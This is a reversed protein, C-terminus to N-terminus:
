GIQHENKEDQLHSRQLNPDALMGSCASSSPGIKPMVEEYSEQFQPIQIQCDSGVLNQSSTNFSVIEETTEEYNESPSLAIPNPSVEKENFLEIKNFNQNQNLCFMKMQRYFNAMFKLHTNFLIQERESSKKRDLADMKEANKIREERDKMIQIRDAEDKKIREERDKMMQIRDAEDKKLRDERDKKMQAEEKKLRDERDKRMQAEEKKLKEERDKKMQTEEIKLKEERDKMMLIRDSEDRKMYTAIFKMVIEMKGELGIDSKEAPMTKDSSKGGFHALCTELVADSHIEGSLEEVIQTTNTTSSNPIKCNIETDVVSQVPKRSKNKLNSTFSQSMTIEDEISNVRNGQLLNEDEVKRRKMKSISNNRWFYSDEPGGYNYELEEFPKINRSAFYCPYMLGDVQVPKVHVNPTKHNDNFLRGFSIDEKSADIYTRKRGIQVEFYYDDKENEVNKRHVGHYYTIFENELLEKKTKIGRGKKEDNYIELYVPAIVKKKIAIRARETESSLSLVKKQKRLERAM